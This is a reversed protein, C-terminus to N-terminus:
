KRQLKEKKRKHRKYIYYGIVLIIAVTLVYIWVSTKKEEGPRIKFYDEEFSLVKELSRRTNTIDSYLVNLKIEKIESVLNFDATTYENSDLDGAIAINAGRVDVGEQRPIEITLAEVDADGINLIEITMQKTVPNYDKVFIEFDVRSDEIELTFPFLRSIEGAGYSYKLDFSASGDLANEDVRLTYPAILTSGYDKKYFGSDFIIIPETGNDFVLPYKEVLELTIDRCTPDSVDDIQFVIKLSDGPIAPYPDQHVLQIDPECEGVAFIGPICFLLIVLFLVSKKM